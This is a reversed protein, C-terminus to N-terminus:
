LKALGLALHEEFEEELQSVASLTRSVQLFSKQAGYLQANSYLRAQTMRLESARSLDPNAFPAERIFISSDFCKQASVRFTFTSYFQLWRSSRKRNVDEALRRIATPGSCYLVRGGRRVERKERLNKLGLRLAAEWISRRPSKGRRRGITWLSYSGRKYRIRDAKWAKGFDGIPIPVHVYGDPDNVVLNEDGMETAVVYHDSGLKFKHYPDYPLLGMDVPGILVVDNELTRRLFRLAESSNAFSRFRSDYRLLRLARGVGVHPNYGSVAFGGGDEPVYVFGFPATTICEIFPLSYHDGKLQLMMALCKSYCYSMRGVFSDVSRVM